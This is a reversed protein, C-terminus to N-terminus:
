CLILSGHGLPSSDMRTSLGPRHQPRIISVWHCWIVTYRSSRPYVVQVITIEIYLNPSFGVAKTVPYHRIYVKLQLHLEDVIGGYSYNDIDTTMDYNKTKELFSRWDLLVKLIMATGFQCPYIIRLYTSMQQSSSPFTSQPFLVSFGKVSFSTFYWVLHLGQYARM